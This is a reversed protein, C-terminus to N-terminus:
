KRWESLMRQLGEITRSRDLILSKETCIEMQIDRLADATQLQECEIKETMDHLTKNLDGIDDQMKEMKQNAKEVRKRTEEIEKRITKLLYGTEMSNADGGIDKETMSEKLKNYHMAVRM